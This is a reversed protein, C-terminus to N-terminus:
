LEGEVQEITVDALGLEVYETVGSKTCYAPVRVDLADSMTFLEDVDDLFLHADSYQLEYKELSLKNWQDIAAKAQADTFTVAWFDANRAQVNAAITATAEDIRTIEQQTVPM